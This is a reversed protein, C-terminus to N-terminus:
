EPSALKRELVEAATVGTTEVVGVVWSKVRM